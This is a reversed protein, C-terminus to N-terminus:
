SCCRGNVMLLFSPYCPVIVMYPSDIMDHLILTHHQQNNLVMKPPNDRSIERDGSPSIEFPPLSLGSLHFMCQLPIGRIRVHLPIITLVVSKWIPPPRIEAFDGTCVFLETFANAIVREQLGICTM